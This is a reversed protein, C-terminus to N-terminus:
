TLAISECGLTSFCCAVITVMPPLHQSSAGPHAESSLPSKALNISPPKFLVLHCSSLLCSLWLAALCTRVYVRYCDEALLSSLRLGPTLPGLHTRFKPHFSSCQSQKFAQKLMTEFSERGKRLGVSGM